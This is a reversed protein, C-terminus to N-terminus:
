YGFNNNFNDDFSNGANNMPDNLIDKTDGDGTPKQKIEEDKYDLNILPRWGHKEKFDVFFYYFLFCKLIFEVYALFYVFSHMTSLSDWYNFLQDEEKVEKNEEKAEELDPHTWADSFVSIWIIDAILLIAILHILIKTTIKPRQNYFNNLVVLTLFSFVLNYDNRALCSTLSIGGLGWTALRSIEYIRSM